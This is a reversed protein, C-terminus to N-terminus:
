QGPYGESLDAYPDEAGLLMQQQVPQTMYLSPYMLAARARDLRKQRLREALYHDYAAALSPFFRQMFENSAGKFFTSAVKKMARRRGELQIEARTRM